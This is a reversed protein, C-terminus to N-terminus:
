ALAARYWIQWTDGASMITPDVLALSRLKGQADATVTYDTGYALGLGNQQLIPKCGAVLGHTDALTATGDVAVTLDEADVPKGLAALSSNIGAIATDAATKNTGVLTEVRDLNSDLVGVAEVLNDGTTGDAALDTVYHNSAYDIGVATKSVGANTALKDTNAGIADSSSTIAQALADIDGQLEELAAQVNTAALDGTAVVSIASADHADTADALHDALAQSVGFIAADLLDDADKLSTAASTYHAAGNAAYAGDTGLGAGAQTADIETQMDTLSGSGLADIASHLEELAGQVNTATVGNQAVTSIATADHADTVDAMHDALEQRLSKTLIGDGTNNFAYGDGYVDKLLQHLEAQVTVDVVGTYFRRASFVDASVDNLDFRQLYAYRVHTVGAPIASATYTGDENDLYFEITTANGNATDVRLFGVLAKGGIVIQENTDADLLDVRAKGFPTVSPLPDTDRIAFVGKNITRGVVTYIASDSYLYPGAVAVAMSADTEAVTVAAAAQVFSEVPKAGLVGAVAENSLKDFDLSQSRGQQALHIRSM